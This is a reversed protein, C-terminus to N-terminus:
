HWAKMSHCVPLSLNRWWRRRRDRLRHSARKWAGRSSAPVEVYNSCFPCDGDYIVVAKDNWEPHRAVIDFTSKMDTNGWQSGRSLEM